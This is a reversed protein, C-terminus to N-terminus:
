PLQEMQVLVRYNIGDAISIDPPATIRFTDNSGTRPNAMTFTDVGDNITTTFFTELTTVQAATMNFLLRFKYPAATSRKRVKPYGTEMQSRIANDPFIEQYGDAIAKPLSGPWSM